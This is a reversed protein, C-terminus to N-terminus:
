GVGGAAVSEAPCVDPYYHLLKVEGTPLIEGICRKDRDFLQYHTNPEVKLQCDICPLLAPDYSYGWLIAQQFKPASEGNPLVGVAIPADAPSPTPSPSPSHVSAPTVASQQPKAAMALPNIGDKALGACVSVSLGAIALLLKLNMM